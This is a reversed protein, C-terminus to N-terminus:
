LSNVFAIIAERQRKILNVFRLRITEAEGGHWLIAEEVSQARGDHLLAVQESVELAYGTGWLPPTRWEQGNALFEERNDALNPGMDHLLLDSFPHFTQESLAPLDSLKPTTFKATHCNVCGIDTFLQEGAIVIPNSHDRQKPVAIHRTYFTVAALVDTQLEKEDGTDGNPAVLCKTQADTCQDTPFL